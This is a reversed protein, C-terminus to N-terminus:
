LFLVGIKIMVDVVIMIVLVMITINVVFDEQVMRNVVLGRNNVTVAMKVVMIVWSGIGNYVIMTRKVVLM